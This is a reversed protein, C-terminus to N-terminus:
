VPVRLETTALRCWFDVGVMLQADDVDFLPTHHDHDSTGPLGGTGLTFMAAHPVHQQLHAFDEGAPSARSGWVVPQPLAAAIVDCLQPSNYLPPHGRVYRLSWDQVAPVDRLQAECIRRLAQEM